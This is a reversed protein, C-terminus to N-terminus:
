AGDLEWTLRLRYSKSIALDMSSPLGYACTSSDPAGGFVMIEVQFTVWM